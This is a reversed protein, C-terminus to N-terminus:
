FEGGHINLGRMAMNKLYLLVKSKERSSCFVDSFVHLTSFIGLTCHFYQTM